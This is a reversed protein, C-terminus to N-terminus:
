LYEFTSCLVILDQIGEEINVLVAKLVGVQVICDLGQKLFRFVVLIRIAVYLATLPFVFLLQLNKLVFKLFVVVPSTIEDALDRIEEAETLTLDVLPM